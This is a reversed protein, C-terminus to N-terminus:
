LQVVTTCNLQIQSPLDKVQINVITGYKSLEQNISSITNLHAPVGTLELTANEESVIAKRTGSLCLLFLPIVCEEDVPLMYRM